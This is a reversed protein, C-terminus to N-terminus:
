KSIVIRIRNERRGSLEWDGDPDHNARSAYSGGPVSLEWLTFTIQERGRRIEGRVITCEGNGDTVCSAWDRNAWQGSVTVGAVPQEQADHVRIVVRATWRQESGDSFGDLDALHVVLPSQDPPQPPPVTPQVVPPVDTPWPTAEM